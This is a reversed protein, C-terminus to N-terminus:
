VRDFGFYKFSEHRFPVLFFFVGCFVLFIHLVSGVLILPHAWTSAVPSCNRSSIPCM